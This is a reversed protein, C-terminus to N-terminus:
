NLFPFISSIKAPEVVDKEKSFCCWPKSIGPSGLVGSPIFENTLLETLIIVSVRRM